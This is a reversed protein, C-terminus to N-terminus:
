EIDVNSERIQVEGELGLRSRLDLEARELLADLEVPDTHEAQLTIRIVIDQNTGQVHTRAMVGRHRRGIDSLVRGLSSEDRSPFDVHRARRITQPGQKSLTPVVHLLFLRQMEAPVGPLLFVTTPGVALQVAPATGIPNEHTTSGEPVMAMKARDPNMAGDEIVEAAQLRRYASAIQSLAQKNEVLPVAAAKALCARTNDDVGPGLGGTVLIYDPKNDLAWKLSGVMESEVRDLVQVSRVRFGLDTVRAAMFAANRDVVAGELIERSVCLIIVTKNV